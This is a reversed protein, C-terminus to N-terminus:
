GRGQQGRSPPDFTKPKKDQGVAAQVQETKRKTRLELDIKQQLTMEVMDNLTKCGLFRVFEYIDDRLM